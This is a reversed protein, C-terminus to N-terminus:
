RAPLRRALWVGLGLRLVGTLASLTPHQSLWGATGRLPGIAWRRMQRKPTMIRILGSGIMSMALMELGLVRLDTTRKVPCGEQRQPTDGM